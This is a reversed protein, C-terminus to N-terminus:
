SGMTFLSKISSGRLASFIEPGECMGVSTCFHRAAAIEQL